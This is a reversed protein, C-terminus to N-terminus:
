GNAWITIILSLIARLWSSRQLTLERREYHYASTLQQITLLFKSIVKDKIGNQIEKYISDYELKKDDEEAQIQNEESM